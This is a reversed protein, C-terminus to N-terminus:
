IHIIMGLYLIHWELQEKQFDAKQEQREMSTEWQKPDDEPRQIIKDLLGIGWFTFTGM